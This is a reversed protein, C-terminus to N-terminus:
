KHKNVLRIEDSLQKRRKFIGRFLRYFPLFPLLVPIKIFFPFSTKVDKLPLFVRHFYYRIKGRWGGGYKELKNDVINKLNGYTGSGIVYDLMANEEETLEGGDFLLQSLRRQKTEFDSLGLDETVQEIYNWDITEGKQKLYVYTDLLFRLGMGANSFHKYEHATMYIYFDEDGFRLGCGTDAPILRSKVDKYYDSIIESVSQPYLKRHMEFRFVPSKVYSDHNGTGFNETEYGRDEMIRRVDYSRTADFLVDNDSMERMGTKPYLDKIVTGKLPMYWIAAKEFESFVSERETDFLAAKRIARGRGQIFRDDKIGASELAYATICTLLHQDAAKFLVDLDMESVRKEDPTKENIVCSCLYAINLAAARYDDNM